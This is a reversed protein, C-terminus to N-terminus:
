PKSAGDASALPSSPKCWLGEFSEQILSVGEFERESMGELLMKCGTLTFYFDQIGDIEKLDRGTCIQGHWYHGEKNYIRVHWWWSV